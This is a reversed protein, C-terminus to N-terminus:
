LAAELADACARDLAPGYSEGFHNVHILLPYLQHLPRRKRYGPDIPYLHDYTELFGDPFGGFLEIYALEMERPGFYVAPDILAPTDGATCVYNGSWLDGHLLAPPEELELLLFDLRELVEDLLRQRHAPIRGLARAREIQPTLRNQAYFGPWDDSWGNIQPQSGLYNDRELGFYPVTEQHLAALGEAFRRAFDPSPPAPELWELILFRTGVAEITPLRLAAAARLRELDAAESLFADIPADARWKAFLVRTPTELRAAANVEGGSLPVVGVIPENLASEMVEGIPPLEDASM